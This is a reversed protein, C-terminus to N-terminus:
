WFECNMNCSQHWRRLLEVSALWERKIINNDREHMRRWQLLRGSLTQVEEVEIGDGGSRRRASAAGCVAEDAKTGKFSGNLM